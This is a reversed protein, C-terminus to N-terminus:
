QDSSYDQGVCHKASVAVAKADIPKDLKALVVFAIEILWHIREDVPGKVPM